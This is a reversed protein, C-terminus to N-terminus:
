FFLEKILIATNVVSSELMWSLRGRLPHVGLPAGQAPKRAEVIFWWLQENAVPIYLNVIYIEETPECAACM